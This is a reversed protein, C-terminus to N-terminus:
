TRARPTREQYASDKGRRVWWRRVRGIVRTLASSRGELKGQELARLFERPGSFPPLLVTCAGVEGVSHADSGATLPLDLRRGLAEAQRNYRPSMVRANRGEIFDLLGARHLAELAWPQLARRWRDCPHSVGVLGGQARIARATEEATLGPAIEEEMFLGLVEGQVTLIEEGAIIQVDPPRERLLALAGDLRDHDTVAVGALGRARCAAVLEEPSLLSDHSATTHIHLDFRELM